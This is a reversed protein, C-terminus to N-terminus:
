IWSLRFLRCYTILKCEASPVAKSDSFGTTKLRSSISSAVFLKSLVFFIPSPPYPHTYWPNNRPCTYVEKKIEGSGMSMLSPRWPLFFFTHFYSKEKCYEPPQLLSSSILCIGHTKQLAWPRIYSGDCLHPSHDNVMSTLRLAIKCLFM